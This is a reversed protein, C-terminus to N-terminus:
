YWKVFLLVFAQRQLDVNATYCPPLFTPAGNADHSFTM